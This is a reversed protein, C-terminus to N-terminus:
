HINTARLWEGRNVNILIYECSSFWWALSGENNGIVIGECPKWNTLMQADKEEILWKIVCGKGTQLTIRLEKLDVMQIWTTNVNSKQPGLKLTAHIPRTKKTQNAICYPFSTSSFSALNPYIKLQDGKTWNELRLRSQPHVHWISHDEFAIGKGDQTIEELWHCDLGALIPAALALVWFLQIKM